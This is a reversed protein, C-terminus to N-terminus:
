TAVEVSTKVKRYYFLFGDPSSIALRSKIIYDAIHRLLNAQKVVGKKTNNFVSTLPIKNPLFRRRPM